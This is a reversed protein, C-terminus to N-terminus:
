ARMGKRCASQQDVSAISCIKDCTVVRKFTAHAARGGSIGDAVTKASCCSEAKCRDNLEHRTRASSNLKSLHRSIAQSAAPDALSVSSLAAVTFLASAWSLIRTKMNTILNAKIPVISKSWEM